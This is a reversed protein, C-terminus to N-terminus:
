NERYPKMLEVGRGFMYENSQHMNTSEKCFRSINSSSVGTCEPNPHKTFDAIHVIKALYNPNFKESKILKM